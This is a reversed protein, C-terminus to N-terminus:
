RQNREIMDATINYCEDVSELLARHVHGDSSRYLIVTIGLDRVLEVAPVFDSDGTVLVIRDIKGSFAMKVMDVALLVDVGKQKFKNNSIKMLRGERVVFRRLRNLHYTFKQYRSFKKSQEPTPPDDQYPPCSYWYTRLRTDAGCLEDSFSEYNIQIKGYRLLLVDIYGADLFIAAQNM